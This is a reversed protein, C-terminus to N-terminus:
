LNCGSKRNVESYRLNLIEISHYFSSQTEVAYRYQYLYRVPILLFYPLPFSKAFAPSKHSILLLFRFLIIQCETRMVHFETYKRIFYVLRVCSLGFRSQNIGLSLNHGGIVLPYPLVMTRLKKQGYNSQDSVYVLWSEIPKLNLFM